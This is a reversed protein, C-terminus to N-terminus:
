YSLVKKAKMKAQISNTLYILAQRTKYLVIYDLREFCTKHKVFLTLFENVVRDPIRKMTKLM